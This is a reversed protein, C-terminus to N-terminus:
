AGSGRGDFNAEVVQRPGSSRAAYPPPIATDRAAYGFRESAGVAGSVREVPAGPINSTAWKSSAV